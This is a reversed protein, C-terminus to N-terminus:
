VLAADDTGHGTGAGTLPDVDEAKPATPTTDGEFHDLLQQAMVRGKLVKPGFGKGEKPKVELTKQCLFMTSAKNWAAGEQPACVKLLAKSAALSVIEVAARYNGHQAKHMAIAYGAEKMLEAAQKGGMVMLTEAVITKTTTGVKIAFERHAGETNFVALANSQSM